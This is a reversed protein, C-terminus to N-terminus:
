LGGFLREEEGELEGSRRAIRARDWEGEETVYADILGPPVWEFSLNRVAVSVAVTSVVRGAPSSPTGTTTTTTTTTTTNAAAQSPSQRSPLPIAAVVPSPNTHYHPSSIM